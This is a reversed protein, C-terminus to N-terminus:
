GFLLWLGWAILLLGGLRALWLGQPLCKELLVWAGLAAVWLLNMVGVVLLLGMLAWCCGLCYGGHALGMRLGGLAGDRWNGLFFQLPGRCRTLCAAKLPLWQYLGAGLLLLATLQTSASRMTNHVLSLQELWWQLATAVIAFVSWVLLYALAFLAVALHRRPAALRGRLLAQYLLLTPLAGPLMMAVMMVAWMALMLLADGPSWPMPMGSMAADAMGGPASMALAMRQLALWALAILTLLCLLWLAQEATLPRRPM